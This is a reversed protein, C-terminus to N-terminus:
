KRRGDTGQRALARLREAIEQGGPVSIGILKRRSKHGSLITVCTKPIRLAHAFFGVCAENAEGEAPPAHLELKMEGNAEMTLHERSSRPKVKLWFRVADNEIQFEFM